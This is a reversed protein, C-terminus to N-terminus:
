RSRLMVAACASLVVAGASETILSWGAWPVNLGDHLGLFGVTASLLLAGVSGALFLVGLVATLVRPRVLLIVALLVGGVSQALFSPGILHIHRYGIKWLHWHIASSALIMAAGFVIGLLVGIRLAM